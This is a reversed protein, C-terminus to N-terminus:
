SPVAQETEVAALECEHALSRWERPSLKWQHVTDWRGCCKGPTVRTGSNEADITVAWFGHTPCRAIVLKMGPSTPAQPKPRKPKDNPDFM